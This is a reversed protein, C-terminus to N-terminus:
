RQRFIEEELEPFEGMRLHGWTGFRHFIAQPFREFLYEASSIPVIMDDEAHWIHINPVSQSVHQWGSADPQSFSWENCCAAVLHLSSVSRNKLDTEALYKIAFNGGLSHGVIVVESYEPIMEIVRDLVMKWEEYKANQKCPFTPAFVKWWRDFARNRLTEKWSTSVAGLGTPEYAEIRYTLKLFNLYDDHSGWSDWGHLIVITKM